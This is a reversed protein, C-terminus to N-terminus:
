RIWFFELFIKHTKGAIYVLRHNKILYQPINCLFVWLLTRKLLHARVLNSNAPQLKRRTIFFNDSHVMDGELNRIIIIYYWFIAIM